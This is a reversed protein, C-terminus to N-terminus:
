QSGRLGQNGDARNLALQTEFVLLNGGVIAALRYGDNSFLLKSCAGRDVVLDYLYQRTATHWLKITGDNDGTALCRGDPSFV